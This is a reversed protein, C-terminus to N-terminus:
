KGTGGKKYDTEWYVLLTFGTEMFAHFFFCDKILSTKGTVRNYIVM